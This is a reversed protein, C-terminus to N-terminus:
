GGSAGLLDLLDNPVDPRAAGIGDPPAGTAGSEHQFVQCIEGSRVPLLAPLGATQVLSSTWSGRDPALLSLAVLDAHARGAQEAEPYDPRRQLRQARGPEQAVPLPEEGGLAVRQQLLEPIADLAGRHM